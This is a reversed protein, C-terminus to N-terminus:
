PPANSESPCRIRSDLPSRDRRIQGETIWVGIIVVNAALGLFGPTKRTSLGLAIKGGSVTESREMKGACVDNVNPKRRELIAEEDQM